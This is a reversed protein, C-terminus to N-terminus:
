AVSASAISKKWAVWLELLAALSIAGASIGNFVVALFVNPTPAFFVAAPVVMALAAILLPPAPLAFPLSTAIKLGYAGALVAGLTAGAVIPLSAAGFTLSAAFALANFSVCDVVALLALQRLNMQLHAPTTSINQTLARLMSFLTVLPATLLFEPRLAPAVIIEAIPRLGVYVAAASVLSLTAMLAYFRGLHNAFDAAKRDYAAVVDPYEVTQLAAIVMIFPRQLLDLALLVGAAAEKGLSTTLILKLGLPSLLGLVAMGASVGGYRAHERMMQPRARGTSSHAGREGFVAIAAYGLYAALLGGVAGTVDRTAFAGALTGVAVMSARFGNLWSFATFRKGFRVVSLHLDSGGQGASIAGGILALAPPVGFPIAAAGALLCVFGCAVGEVLLTRRQDRETGPTQGPYFRSCAFRLWEFAAVAGVQTVAIFVSYTAYDVPDLIRAVAMLLGFALASQYFYAGMAFLKAM